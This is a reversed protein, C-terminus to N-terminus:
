FYFLEIEIKVDEDTVDFVCNKWKPPGFGFKGDNSMGIGEKPMGILSSKMKGDKDEDHMLAIAYKGPQVGSFECTAKKSDIPIRVKRATKSDETLFDDKKDYLTVQVVGDNNRLKSVDVTIVFGDANTEINTEPSTEANTEPSTAPACAVWGTLLVLALIRTANM